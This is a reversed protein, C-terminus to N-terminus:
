VAGGFRTHAQYGASGKEDQFEIDLMGTNNQGAMITFDAILKKSVPVV